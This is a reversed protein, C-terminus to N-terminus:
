RALALAHHIFEHFKDIDGDLLMREILTTGLARYFCNGDGRVRRWHTADVKEAMLRIKRQHGQSHSFEEALTALPEIFGLGNSKSPLVQQDDNDNGIPGNYLTSM